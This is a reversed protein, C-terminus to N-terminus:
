KMTEFDRGVPWEHAKNIQGNMLFEIISIDDRWSNTRWTSGFLVNCIIYGSHIHFEITSPSPQEYEQPTTYGYKQISEQRLEELSKTVGTSEYSKPIPLMSNDYRKIEEGSTDEEM